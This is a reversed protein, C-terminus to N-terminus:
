SILFVFVSGGGGDGGGGGGGVVFVRVRLLKWAYILSPNNCCQIGYSFTGTGFIAKLM